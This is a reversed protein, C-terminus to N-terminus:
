LDDINRKLEDMEEFWEPHLKRMADDVIPNVNMVEDQTDWDNYELSEIIVMYLRLKQEYSLGEIEEVGNAIDRFVMSGSSWGM